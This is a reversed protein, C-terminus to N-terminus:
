IEFRRDARSLIESGLRVGRRDCGLILYTIVQSVDWLIREAVDSDGEALIAAVIRGGKYGDGRPRNSAPKIPKRHLGHYCAYDDSQWCKGKAFLHCMIVQKGKVKKCGYRCVRGKNLHRCYPADPSECARLVRPESKM